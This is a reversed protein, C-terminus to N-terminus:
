AKFDNSIIDFSNGLLQRWRPLDSNSNFFDNIDINLKFDEPTKLALELDLANRIFKLHEVNRLPCFNLAKDSLMVVIPAGLIVADLVASTTNSCFAIDHTSLLTNLSSYDIRAGAPINGVGERDCAPHLKITTEVGKEFNFTAKSVIKLMESTGNATFDGIVLLKTPKHSGTNEGARDANNLFNLSNKKDQRGIYRLAEVDVLVNRNGIPKTILSKALKGNLAIKDPQPRDTNSHVDLSLVNDSVMLDWYRITSHPVAILRGHGNKRWAHILATEWSQNEYLYLGLNQYPLSSLAKDFTSHWLCNQIASQGHLSSLWDDKLFPWFSVGSNKPSFYNPASNLRFGVCILSIWNKVAKVITSASFYGDVFAHYGNVPANENYGRARKVGTQADPIADSYPFIHLWNTNLGLETLFNPLAEWQHSHFIKGFNKENGLNFFYSFFTVSQDNFFRKPDHAHCLRWRSIMTGLLWKLAKITHPLHNVWNVHKSKKHHVPEKDWEYSVGLNLCLISISKALLTNSTKLIIKAPKKQVLIDELALLRLCDCIRASKYPSKELILSMWWFSFGAEVEFHESIRKDQIVTEGLDHVFQLYKSKFKNSNKEVHDLIAISNPGYDYGNWYLITQSDRAYQYVSDSIILVFPEM